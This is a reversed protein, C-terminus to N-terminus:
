GASVRGARGRGTVGGVIIVVVVTVVVLCHCYRHYHRHTVVIIVILPWTPLEVLILAM